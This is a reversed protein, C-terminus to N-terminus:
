IRALRKIILCRQQFCKSGHILSCGIHALQKVLVHATNIGIQSPLLLIEQNIRREIIRTGVQAQCPTRQHSVRRGLVLLKFVVIETRYRRPHGCEHFFQFYFAVLKTNRYLCPMILHRGVLKLKCRNKLIDIQGIVVILQYHVQHLSNGSLVVKGYQQM